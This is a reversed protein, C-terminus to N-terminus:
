VTALSAGSIRVAVGTGSALAYLSEGASIIQALGSERYSDGDELVVSVFKNSSDNSGSTPVIWLDVTRQAGSSNHLSISSLAADTIFSYISTASTPVEDAYFCTPTSITPM